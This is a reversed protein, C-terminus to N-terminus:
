ASGGRAGLHNSARRPARHPSARRPKAGVLPSPFTGGQFAVRLATM